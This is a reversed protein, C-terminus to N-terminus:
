TSIIWHEARARALREGQPSRVEASFILLRDKREIFQASAFIHDMEPLAPRSFTLEMRRTVNPPAVLLSLPGLTNDIAAAIVGGQVAGYPNLYREFLPFRTQLCGAAPDFAVVEGQMDTFVPPPLRFRDLQDGFRSRFEVILDQLIDDSM